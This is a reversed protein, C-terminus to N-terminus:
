VRVRRVFRRLTLLAGAGGAQDLTVEGLALDDQRLRSQGMRLENGRRGHLHKSRKREDTGSEREHIFIWRPSLSLEVLSV